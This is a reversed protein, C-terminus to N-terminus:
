TYRNGQMIAPLFDHGVTALLTFGAVAGLVAGVSLVIDVDTRGPLPPKKRGGDSCQAYAIVLLPFGGHWFVYLWATSQPGADLLGTASFLGPFTLAHSVAM